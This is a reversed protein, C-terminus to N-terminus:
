THTATMIGVVMAIRIYKSCVVFATRAMKLLRALYFLATGTLGRHKWLSVPSSLANLKESPLIYRGLQDSVEDLCRGMTTQYNLHADGFDAEAVEIYKYM